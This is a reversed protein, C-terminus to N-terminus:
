RMMMHEHDPMPQPHTAPIAAPVTTPLASPATAKDGPLALRGVARELEARATHYRKVAEIYELRTELEDRKTSLLEDTGMAMAAQQKQAQDTIKEQLPLLQDRYAAVLRSAAELHARATAVESRVHAEMAALKHGAQRVQADLRAIAAQKRDFIPVGVQVNPGTVVQRDPSRESDVGVQVSGLIGARTLRRSEALVELELREAALDMRNAIAAATLEELAAPAPVGPTAAPALRWDSRASSLGMLKGLRDRAVAADEQAKIVEMAASARKSQRNLLSLESINGAKHLAGSFEEQAEALQLLQRRLDLAQQQAQLEAYATKVDAALQLVAHGTRLKAQELQGGALKKRLPIMLLDLFEETLNLEVNTASPPVDPFRTRVFFTPNRLLGAQVLDAQAIGIDEYTAQLSRNNLVAVRLSQEQTLPQSLLQEVASAIEPDSDAYAWRHIDPGNRQRVMEATDDFPRHAASPGCGWAAALWLCAVLPPALPGKHM